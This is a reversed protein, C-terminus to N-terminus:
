GFTFCYAEADPALYTIEFTRDAISSRERILQYLRQQTLTGHGQEDVDLGRADGPPVGDVLVRFPVSTGRERPGMVLNVDRAHFRFVIRGDASHLVSAGSGVTWDGLLTWQNLGLREPPVDSAFNRAQASGLYTEPSELNAWDAQAEFGDDAVSVLDDGIDDRGSERL